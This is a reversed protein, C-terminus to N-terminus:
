LPLPVPLSPALPPPPFLTFSLSLIAMYEYKCHWIDRPQWTHYGGFIHLAVNGMPDQVGLLRLQSDDQPFGAFSFVWKRKIKGMIQM